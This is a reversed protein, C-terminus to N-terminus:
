DAEGNLIEVIRAARNMPVATVSIEELEVTQLKRLGAEQKEQRGAYGISLGSLCHERIWFQADEDLVTGECWLGYDKEQILDWRGIIKSSDHSLLMPRVYTFKKLDAVFCGKVTVDNHSDSEGFVSAWGKIIM